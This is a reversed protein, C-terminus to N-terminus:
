SAARDEEKKFQVHPVAPFEIVHARPTDVPVLEGSPLVQWRGAEVERRLLRALLVGTLVGPRKKVLPKTQEPQNELEVMEAM